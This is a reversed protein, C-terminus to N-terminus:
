LYGKITMEILDSYDKDQMCTNVIAELSLTKELTEIVDVASQSLKSMSLRGEPYPRLLVVPTQSLGLFQKPTQHKTDRLKLKM